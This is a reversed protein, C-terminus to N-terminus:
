FTVTGEPAELDFVNAVSSIMNYHSVLGVTEVLRGPGLEALARSFLADSLRREHLLSRAVDVMFRERETLADLPGHARLAEITEDRVGAQRARIEHRSWPFRAGLERAVTLIIIEKDRTDLMGQHRFYNEVASLHDAMLPAHILISYPSSGGTKGSMIRDWIAQNEASLDNRNLAPLRSM